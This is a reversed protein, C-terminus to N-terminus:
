GGDDAGDTGTDAGGFEISHMLDSLDNLCQALGRAVTDFADWTAMGQIGLRAMAKARGTGALHAVGGKSRFEQLARLPEVHASTGGIRDAFRELLSLSLEGKAADDLYGKLPTPDIGDVLVKTMLLLCPGLATPDDSLPGVLSQWQAETDEDLDRWIPGGLVRSSIEAARNKAQRLDEPPDASSAWQNLFDRRFRGEDMKGEPPVNYSLWHGWEDSPLRQGLDGLYADVLGATNISLDLGWLDLCSLRTRSLRYRHPEAAYPQLVERRFNTPTLFHLRTDDKDFYTALTTPDCSHRLPQGTAPDMGCIFSPYDRDERREEFRPLAATRVGLVVYQGLLRSFGPRDGMLRDSTAVFDFHAWDSQFESDVREFGSAATKPVYDVQILADRGCASLFQRFELARVEVRWHERGVTFRILERERGAHNLYRWGNTVPFADWYWLFPHSVDVTPLRAGTPTRAQVFFELRPSDTALGADFGQGDASEWISATGLDDGAWTVEGLAADRDDPHVLVCGIGGHEEPTFFHESIALWGIPDPVVQRLAKAPWLEDPFTGAPREWLDELSAPPRAEIYGPINPISM